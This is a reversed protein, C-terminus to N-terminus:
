EPKAKKSKPKEILGNDVLYQYAHEETTEPRSGAKDIAYANMADHQEQTTRFKQKKLWFNIYRSDM